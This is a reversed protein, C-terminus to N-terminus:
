VSGFKKPSDGATWTELMLAVTCTSVASSPRTSSVSLFRAM